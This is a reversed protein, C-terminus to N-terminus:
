ALWTLGSTVLLFCLLCEESLGFDGLYLCVDDAVKVRLLQLKLKSLCTPAGEQGLVM